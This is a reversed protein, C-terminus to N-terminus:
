SNLMRQQWQLINATENSLVILAQNQDVEASRIKELNGFVSHLLEVAEDDFNGKIKGINGVVAGILHTLTKEIPRDALAEKMEQLESEITALKDETIEDKLSDINAKLVSFSQDSVAKADESVADESLFNDLRGEIDVIDEKAPEEPQVPEADTLAPSVPKDLSAIPAAEGSEDDDFGLGGDAFFDDVHRNIESDASDAPGSGFGSPRDDSAFLAPALEGGDLPLPSEESDDDEETEVDVGPVPEAPFATPSETTEREDGGMEALAPAIMGDDLTPLAEEDSDDDAETEVDVGRLAEEASLGNFEAQGDNEVDGFFSSVKELTEESFSDDAGIDEASSTQEFESTDAFSLESDSPEATPASTITKAAEAEAAQLAEKYKAIAEPTISEAIEEKFRNFKDAETILLDKIFRDDHSGDVLTELALYFSNLLKFADAHSASKMLKIYGGIADIGQLLLRHPKSTAWQEQLRKVEKSIESLEKDTIEWDISLIYAKLNYLDPNTESYEPSDDPQEQVPADERVSEDSDAGSGPGFGIQQKLREFKKVDALLIEKKEQESIQEDLVIKELDYFFAILVKMANHHANSKEQFIYKSIKQLAQIYVLKVPDNAWVQQAQQLEDNFDILVEDTIEWEISLMLTKLRAIPSEEDGAYEFLDVYGTDFSEDAIEDLGVTLDDDYQNGKYQEM